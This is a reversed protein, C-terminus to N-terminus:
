DLEILVKGPDNKKTQKKIKLNKADLGLQSYLTSKIYFIINPYLFTAFKM